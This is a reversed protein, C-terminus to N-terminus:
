PKIYANVGITVPKGGVSATTAMNGGSTAVVLTKGSASPRPSHMPLTIVLNNGEIKATM